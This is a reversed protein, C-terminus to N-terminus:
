RSRMLKSYNYSSLWLSGAALLGAFAFAMLLLWPAWDIMDFGNVVFRSPDGLTIWMVLAPSLALYFTMVLVISGILGRSGQSLTGNLERRVLWPWTGVAAVVALAVLNGALAFGVFMVVTGLEAGFWHLGAAGAVVIPWLLLAAIVQLKGILLTVHRTPAQLYLPWQKGDWIALRGMHAYLLMLVALFWLALMAACHRAPAPMAVSNLLGSVFFRKAALVYVMGGVVLMHLLAGPQQLLQAFEKRRIAGLPSAPWNRRSIRRPRHALQYNQLAVPHLGAVMLFAAISGALLILAPQMAALTVTDNMGADVLRAATAVLPPPQAGDRAATSLEQARGSAGAFVQALLFIPFGFAALSSTAGLAARAIRGRAMRMLGIQLALVVCLSPLVATALALPLILYATASVPIQHERAYALLQLLLPLALAAAWLLATGSSRLLIQTAARGRWVPASLWLPLEPSGFLHRQAQAFGIWGAIVPCPSLAHAVLYDLPEGGGRVVSFFEWHELLMRGLLWYMCGLTLPPLLRGTMSGRGDRRLGNLVARLDALLLPM